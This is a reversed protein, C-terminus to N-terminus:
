VTPQTLFLNNNNSNTKKSMCTCLPGKWKIDVDGSHILDSLIKFGWLFLLDFHQCLVSRPFLLKRSGRVFFPWKTSYGEFSFHCTWLISVSKDGWFHSQRGRDPFKRGYPPTSTFHSPGFVYVRICPFLLLKRKSLFFFFSSFCLDTGWIKFRLEKGTNLCSEFSARFIDFRM